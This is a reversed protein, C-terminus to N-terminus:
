VKLSIIPKRDHIIVDFPTGLVIRFGAMCTARDRTPGRRDM